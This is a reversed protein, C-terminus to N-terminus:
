IGIIYVDLVHKGVLRTVMYRIHVNGGVRFALHARMCGQRTSTYNGSVQSNCPVLTRAANNGSDSMLATEVDTCERPCRLQFDGYNRRELLLRHWISIMQPPNEVEGSWEQGHRLIPSRRLV